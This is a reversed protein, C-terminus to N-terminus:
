KPLPVPRPPVSAVPPASPVVVKNAGILFPLITLISGIIKGGGSIGTPIIGATILQGLAALLMRGIREFASQDFLLAKLYPIM